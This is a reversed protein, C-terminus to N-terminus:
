SIALIITGNVSQNICRGMWEYMRMERRHPYTSAVLALQVVFFFMYSAHIINRYEVMINIHIEVHM